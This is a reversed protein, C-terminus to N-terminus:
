ANILRPTSHNAIVKCPLTDLHCIASRSPVNKKEYSDDKSLIIQLNKAAIMWLVFFALLIIKVNLITRKELPSSLGLVSYLIIGLTKAPAQAYRCAVIYM